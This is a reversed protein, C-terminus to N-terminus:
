SIYIYLSFNYSEKNRLTTNLKLYSEKQFLEPSFVKRKDRPQNYHLGINLPRPPSLFNMLNTYVQYLTLYIKLCYFM